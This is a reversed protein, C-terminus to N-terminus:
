SVEYGQTDVGEEREKKNFLFIDSTVSTVSTNPAISWKKANLINRNGLDEIEFGLRRLAPASRSLKASIDRPTSPWHKNAIYPEHQGLLTQLQSATGEWPKKIEKTIAILFPDNEITLASMSSLGDCYVQYANSGEIEDLSKLVKAFDAMRPLENIEVNPLNQFVRAALNLLSGLAEPYIENWFDMLDRETKKNKGLITPLKIQILRDVLDNRSISLGIGNLIVIQKIWISFSNGDTYLKRRREVVGTSARCLDDSFWNPITSLNDLIIVRSRSCMDFWSQRNDPPSQPTSPPDMLAGLIKSLTSKGSGQEGDLLLLPAPVESDLNAILFGKILTWYQEPVGFVEFVENLDRGSKPRPLPEIVDNRRFLCPSEKLINVEGDKIEIVEGTADGIDIYNANLISANRKYLRQKPFKRAEGVLIGIADEVLKKSPFKGIIRYYIMQLESTLSGSLGSVEIGVKPGSKPFAVFDGELTQIVEFEHRGIELILELPSRKETPEIKEM